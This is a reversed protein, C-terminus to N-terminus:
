VPITSFLGVGGSFSVRDFIGQNRWPTYRITGRPSFAPKSNLFLDDDKNSIFFHDARVGLEGNFLTGESGFSMLAYAASNVM